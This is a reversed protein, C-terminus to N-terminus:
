EDKAKFSKGIMQELTESASIEVKQILLDTTKSHVEIAKLKDYFQIKAKGSEMDVDFSKIAKQTEIPIKHFPLLQGNDDYIHAINVHSLAKLETLMSEATYERRDQMAQQVMKKRQTDSNVWKMCDAYSIDLQSCLEILTGGCTIHRCISDLFQPDNVVQDRKSLEDMGM